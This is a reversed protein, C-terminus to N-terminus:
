AGRAISKLTSSLTVLALGTGLLNIGVLVGVAWMGSVPWQNWIFLGLILSLVGSALLWKWGSAPKFRFSTVIKSVGEAVFYIVLLLTLFALGFLPHGIVAIGTLATIIGLILGMAKEISAEAKLERVIPVIGAILLIFGIVIVLASGALAPALVAAVGLSILVIGLWHLHEIASQKENGM